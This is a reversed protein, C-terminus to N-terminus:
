RCRALKEKLFKVSFAASVEDKNERNWGPAFDFDRLNLGDISSLDHAVKYKLALIMGFIKQIRLLNLIV